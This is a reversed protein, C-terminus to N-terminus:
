RNLYALVALVRRNDDDSPQLYPTTHSHQQVKRSYLLRGSRPKRVGARKEGPSTTGDGM